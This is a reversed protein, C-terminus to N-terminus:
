RRAWKDVPPEDAANAAAIDDIAQKSLRPGSAKYLRLLDRATATDAPWSARLVVESFSETPYRRAARLRNYAELKLTITKSAM